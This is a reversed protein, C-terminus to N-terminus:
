YNSINWFDRFWAFLRALTFNARKPRADEAFRGSGRIPPKKGSSGWAEDRPTYYMYASRVDVNEM